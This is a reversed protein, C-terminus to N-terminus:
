SVDSESGLYAEIVDKDKQIEEPLGEAIKKGFNLAVIRDCVNMIVHMHHEIVLVTVGLQSIKRIIEILEKQEEKSTGAAPEDLMLIQPDKSLAIGIMLKRQEVPPINRALMAKKDYLGITKLVEKIRKNAKEEETRYKKNQLINDIFNTEITQFLGAKINEEISLDMLISTIQFTRSIGKNSVEHASLRSIDENNFEVKGSTPKLFSTILNFITTKGSGNPGILGLIEGKNISFSVNNVATLGGFKKTLNDVKLMVM